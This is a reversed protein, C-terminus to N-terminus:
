IDPKMWSRRCRWATPRVWRLIVHPDAILPIQRGTLPLHAMRGILSQYRADDPHVAVAVDGFLTEPRTTAVEIAGGGELPYRIRWLHGPIERAQVELDSIATKLVPDWNVLRKSRYILGERHLTVFVRRVAASIEPDLTFKTRSWDASMGLRQLQELIAGGSQEKFAWVRELFAERGLAHRTGGEAIVHREVLMQTAIGAHDTGPQALVDFGQMRWFRVWIDQLTFTLAHGIHLNGTVNPPPLILCKPPKGGARDAGTGKHQWLARWRAELSSPAYTKDLM